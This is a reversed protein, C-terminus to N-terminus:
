ATDWLALQVEKGDLRLEAVYNQYHGDGDRMRDAKDGAREQGRGRGMGRGRACFGSGLVSVSLCSCVEFITPEYERPFEGCCFVTVLSTKGCAGDGVIVLKRRIPDPPM